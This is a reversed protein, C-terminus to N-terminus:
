RIVSSDSKTKIIKAWKIKEFTTLVLINYKYTNKSFLYIKLYIDSSKKNIFYSKSYVFFFNNIDIIFENLYHMM